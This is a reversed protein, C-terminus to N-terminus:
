EPQQMNLNGKGFFHGIKLDDANVSRVGPLNSIADCVRDKESSSSVDGRVTVTGDQGVETILKSGMPALTPDTVLKERIEEAIAWTQPNAGAPAATMATDTDASVPATSTYIRQEPEASTPTLVEGPMPSYTAEAQTVPRNAACGLALSLPLAMWVANKYIAKLM